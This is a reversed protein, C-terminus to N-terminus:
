VGSHAGLGQVGPSINAARYNESKLRWILTVPETQESAQLSPAMSRADGPRWGASPRSHFKETIRTM